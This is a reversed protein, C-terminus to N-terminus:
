LLLGFTISTRCLIYFIIFRLRQTPSSVVLIGLPVSIHRAEKYKNYGTLIIYFTHFVLINKEPYERIKFGTFSFITHQNVM